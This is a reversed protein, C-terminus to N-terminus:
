NSEGTKSAHLRMEGLSKKVDRMFYKSSTTRIDTHGLDALRMKSVAGPSAVNSVKKMQLPKASMRSTSATVDTSMTNQSCFSTIIQRAHHQQTATLADLLKTFASDPQRSVIDFLTKVQQERTASQEIAQRRRQCLSLKDLLDGTVSVKDALLEVSSELADRHESTMLKMQRFTRGCRQFEDVPIDVHLSELGKQTFIPCLADTLLEDLQASTYLKELNKLATVNKCRFKIIISGERIEKISIEKGHLVQNLEQVEPANHEVADEIYQRIAAEAAPLCAGSRTRAIIRAVVEEGIFEVAVHRQGTEELAAIFRDFSSQSKRALLDMIVENRDIDTNPQRGTVRQQDYESFVGKSVLTTVLGSHKSDITKVLYTRHETLKKRFEECVPRDDGQKTLIYTVHVQGTDNLAKVLRQFADDSKRMIIEVLTRARENYGAASRVRDSDFSSIIEASYLNVLLGNEPDLFKCLQRMNTRLLNWHETSMPIKDSVQRVNNDACVPRNDGQKTLIYAVHAQGTDNLADVLGQFADADKRMIIEVLTSAKEEYGAASRVHDRDFSSIIGNSYMTVLLGNGPDLYKCLERMITRLLDWHETSMPVEDSEQRFINAVHSQGSSRLAAIFKSMVTEQLEAPIELLLRLLANNKEDVTPLQEIHRLRDEFYDINRLKGLLYISPDLCRLLLDFNELIVQEEDTKQGKVWTLGMSLQCYYM